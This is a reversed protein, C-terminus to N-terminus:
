KKNSVFPYKEEWAAVAERITIPAYDRESDVLNNMWFHKQGKNFGEPDFSSYWGTEMYEFEVQLEQKQSDTLNDLSLVEKKFDYYEKPYEEM